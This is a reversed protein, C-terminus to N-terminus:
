KSLSYFSSTSRLRGGPAHVVAKRVSGIDSCDELYDEASSTDPGIRGKTRAFQDLM